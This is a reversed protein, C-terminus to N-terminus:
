NIRSSLAVQHYGKLHLYVLSTTYVDRLCYESIASLNQDIWYVKGVDAGSITEKSSPIHLINALLDLSIYHKYDGFKWLELTDQHPIEWPKKGALQLAEPIPLQHILLRRCIYPLDFEKINHGVFVVKGLQSRQQVIKVFATLLAVEDDSQISKQNLILEDDEYVLRGLGICVVKGFEAYIGARQEYLTAGDAIGEKFEKLFQVKHLWHQQLPAPIDVLSKSQAVTEIDIFIYHQFESAIQALEM